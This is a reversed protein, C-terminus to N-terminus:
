SLTPLGIRKEALSLNLNGHGGALKFRGLGVDDVVDV